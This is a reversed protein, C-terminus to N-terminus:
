EHGGRMARTTPQPPQQLEASSQASWHAAPAVTRAIRRRALMRGRPANQLHHSLRRHRSDSSLTWKSRGSPPVLTWSLCLAVALNNADVVFEGDVRGCYDCHCSANTMAVAATSASSAAPTPSKPSLLGRAASAVSGVMQVAAASICSALTGSESATPAAAPAPAPAAAPPNSARAAPPEPAPPNRAALLGSMHAASASVQNMKPVHNRKAHRAAELVREYEAHTKGAKESKPCHDAHAKKYTAGRNCKTCPKSEDIEYVAHCTSPCTRCTCDAKAKAPQLRSFHGHKHTAAKRQQSTGGM